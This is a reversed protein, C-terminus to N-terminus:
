SLQYKFVLCLIEAFLNADLQYFAAPFGDMGSSKNPEMTKIASALESVTIPIDLSERQDETLRKQLVKLFRRRSARSPPRFDNECMVSSWKDYFADHIAQPCTTISEDANRVELIAVKYLTKKAPRFFHSTSAENKSAHFDFSLDNQYSKWESM